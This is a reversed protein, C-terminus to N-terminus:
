MYIAEPADMAMEIYDFGLKGIEEIGGTVPRIPFNVAGYRVEAEKAGM